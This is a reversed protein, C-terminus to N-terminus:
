VKENKKYKIFEKTYTEIINVVSVFGVPEFGKSILEKAKENLKTVTTASVLEYEEVERQQPLMKQLDVNGMMKELLGEM